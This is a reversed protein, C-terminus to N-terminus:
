KDPGNVRAMVMEAVKDLDDDSLGLLARAPYDHMPGRPFNVAARQGYHHIQAIRQARGAFEVSAAGPRASAKLWGAKALGRMMPGSKGQRRKPGTKRPQWAAGDPGTQARIRRQNRQRMERAIHLALQRQGAPGLREMLAAAWTELANLQAM